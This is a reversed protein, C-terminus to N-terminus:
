ICYRFSSKKDEKQARKKEYPRLIIEYFSLPALEFISPRGDDIELDADSDM